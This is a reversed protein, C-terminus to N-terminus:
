YKLHLNNLFIFEAVQFDLIDDIDISKGKSMEFVVCKKGLLSKPLISSKTIYIAAGNPAFHISNVVNNRWNLNQVNELTKLIKNPNFIHPVRVVSVLSDADSTSEFLEISNDLDELTRLPSTPQLTIVADYTFQKIKQARKFEYNVVDLTSSSDKSLYEPRIGTNLLRPFSNNEFFELSDTSVIVDSIKKSQLAIEITWDILQKGAFYRFNKNTLRKSNLKAPIIALYKYM